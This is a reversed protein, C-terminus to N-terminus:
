VWVELNMYMFYYYSSHFTLQPGLSVLVFLFSCYAQSLLAQDAQTSLGPWALALCQFLVWLLFQDNSIPQQYLSLDPNLHNTELSAEPLEGLVM